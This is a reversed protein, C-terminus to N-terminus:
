RGGSSARRWSLPSKARRRGFPRSSRTASCAASTKSLKRWGCGIPTRPAPGTAAGAGRCPRGSCSGGGGRTRAPCPAARSRPVARRRADLGPRGHLVDRHQRQLSALRQIPRQRIVESLEHQLGVRGLVEAQTDADGLDSGEGDLGRWAVALVSPSATRASSMDPRRPLARCCYHQRSASAFPLVIFDRHSTPSINAANTREPEGAAAAASPSLITRVFLRFPSGTILETHTSSPALHDPRQVDSGPRRAGLESKRTRPRSSSM